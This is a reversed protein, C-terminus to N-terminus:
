APRLALCAEGSTPEDMFVVSPNAVQLTACHSQGGEFIASIVVACRQLVFPSCEADEAACQYWSPVKSIGVMEVAISLRKREQVSLGSLKPIGVMKNQIPNLEVIDLVQLVSLNLM